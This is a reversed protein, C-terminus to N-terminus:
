RHSFCIIKEGRASHDPEAQLSVPDTEFDITFRCLRCPELDTRLQQEQGSLSYPLTDVGRGVARAQGILRDGLDDRAIEGHFREGIRLRRDEAGALAIRRVATAAPAPRPRDAM